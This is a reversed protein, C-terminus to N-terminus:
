GPVLEQEQQYGYVLCSAHVHHRLLRHPCIGKVAWHPSIRVIVNANRIKRYSLEDLLNARINLGFYTLSRIIQYCMDRRADLL